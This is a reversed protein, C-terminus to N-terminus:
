IPNLNSNSESSRPFTNSTPLTFATGTCRIGTNSVATVDVTAGVNSCRDRGTPCHLVVCRETLYDYEHALYVSGFYNDVAISSGDDFTISLIVSELEAPFPGSYSISIFHLVDDNCFREAVNGDVDPECVYGTFELFRGGGPFKDQLVLPQDGSCSTKITLSDVVSGQKIIKCQLSAPTTSSLGFEVVEEDSIGFFIFPTGCDLTVGHEGRYRFYLSEVEVGEACGCKLDDRPIPELCSDVDFPNECLLLVDLSCFDTPSGTPIGSTTPSGTPTGPSVTTPGNPGSPSVTPSGTPPPTSPSATPSGTPPGTPPFTNPTTFQISSTDSCPVDTNPAVGTVHVTAEFARKSCVDAVSPYHVLTCSESDMGPDLLLTGVPPSEFNELVLLSGDDSFTVNLMMSEIEAPVVGVNCLLISYEVDLFCFYEEVDGDGDPECTYGTFTLVPEGDIEGFVDQLVLGDDGDCSSDIIFEDVTSGGVIVSCLLADPITSAPGFEVNGGPSLNFFVFPTGCDLTAGDPGSYIFYLTDIEVGKQCGCKVDVRPFPDLCFDSQCYLSVDLSCIENPSGTPTGPNVTPTGTPTGTPPFTNPTTFQISSTDSCPVDTNPAVGTVHVTAEFARKSCV